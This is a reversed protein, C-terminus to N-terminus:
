YKEMDHRILESWYGNIEAESYGMAKLEEDTFDTLMAEIVGIPM